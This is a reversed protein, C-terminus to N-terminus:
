ERQSRRNFRPPEVNNVICSIVTLIEHRNLPAFASDIKGNIYYNLSVNEKGEEFELKIIKKSM